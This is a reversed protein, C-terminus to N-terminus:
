KSFRLLSWNPIFFSQTFITDFMRSICAFILSHLDALMTLAQMISCALNIFLMKLYKFYYWAREGLAVYLGGGGWEFIDQQLYHLFM